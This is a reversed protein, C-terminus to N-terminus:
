SADAGPVADWFRARAAAIMSFMAGDDDERTRGTLADRWRAPLAAAGHMAGVAAGVIAAVTDNDKTDNVARVIAGEPDHGHLELTYLVTPM